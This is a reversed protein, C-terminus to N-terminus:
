CGLLHGKLHHILQALKLYDRLKGAVASLQCKFHLRGGGRVHNLGRGVAEQVGGGGLPGRPLRPQNLQHLLNASILM